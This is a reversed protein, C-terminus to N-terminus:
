SIQLVSPRARSTTPATLDQLLLLRVSDAVVPSQATNSLTVECGEGANLEIETLTQWSFPNTTQDITTVAIRQGGVSISFPAATAFDSLTPGYAQVAYRGARPPSLRWHFVREGAGPPAYAFDRGYYEAPQTSIAWEGDAWALGPDANDVPVQPEVQTTARSWVPSETGPAARIRVHLTYHGHADPPIQFSALSAGSWDSWAPLSQDPQYGSLEVIDDHGPVRFWGELCLSFEAGPLDPWSFTLPGPWANRGQEVVVPGAPPRDSLALREAVTQRLAPLQQYVFDGPCETPTCDRHGALSALQDRWCDDQALYDSQERPDIGHRGCEFTLAEELQQLMGDPAPVEQFNGILAISTSGYNFPRAHGAVVAYSAVERGPAGEPDQDRGRRGEYVRGTTDILLNYGIDGWGLTQAHYTYIARVQEAGDSYDNATATHHVVVKKAPVYARPWVESGDAAFRLSEDAAWAERPIIQERFSAPGALLSAFSGSESATAITTARADFYTLAIRHLEAPEPSGAFTARYQLYWAGRAGILAGFMELRPTEAVGAELWVRQWRSWRVGDSSTRLEFGVEGGNSQWHVGIHRAEFATALVASTFVGGEPGATLGQEGGARPLTLGASEGTAFDARSEHILEGVRVRIVTARAQAQDQAFAPTRTLTHLAVASVGGLGVTLLQRRSLRRHLM